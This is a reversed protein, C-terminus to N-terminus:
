EEQTKDEECQERPLKKRKMRVDEDCNRCLPVGHYHLETRVGCLACVVVNDGNRAPLM